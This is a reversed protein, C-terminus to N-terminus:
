VEELSFSVTKIDQGSSSPLEAFFYEKENEVNEFDIFLFSEAGGHITAEFSVESYNKGFSTELGYAKKNVKDPWNKM